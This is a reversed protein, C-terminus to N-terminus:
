PIQALHLPLRRASAYRFPFNGQRTKILGSRLKRYASPGLTRYTWSRPRRHLRANRDSRGPGLGCAPHSANSRRCGGPGNPSQLRRASTGGSCAFPPTVGRLFHRVPPSCCLHLSFWPNVLFRRDRCRRISALPWCGLARSRQVANAPKKMQCVPCTRGASLRMLTSLQLYCITTQRHAPTVSLSTSSTRSWPAAVISCNVLIHPAPLPQPPQQ